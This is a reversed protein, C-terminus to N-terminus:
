TKLTRSKDRPLLTKFTLLGFLCFDAPNPPSEVGATQTSDYSFALLLLYRVLVACPHIKYEVGSVIIAENKVFNNIRPLKNFFLICIIHLSEMTEYFRPVKIEVHIAYKIISLM